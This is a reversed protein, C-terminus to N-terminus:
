PAGLQVTDRAGSELEVRRFAEPVGGSAAAGIWWTGPLLELTIRRGHAAIVRANREADSARLFATRRAIRERARRTSDDPPGADGLARRLMRARERLRDRAGRLQEASALAARHEDYRRAYDPAFRDAGALELAAGNLSDRRQQFRQDLVDASDALALLRGVSDARPTGLQTPSADPLTVIVREPAVPLAFVELAGGTSTTDVLVTVTARRTCGTVSPVLSLM